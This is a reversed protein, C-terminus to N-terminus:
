TASGTDLLEIARRPVRSAGLDLAPAFAQAPGLPPTIVGQQWNTALRGLDNVNITLNYDSDGFIWRRNSLQWNSALQGLDAVDVTGSLNTDGYYTYKVLVSTNDVSQGSFTAPFSSFVESADAYGLGTNGAVAAVDSQIGLGNWSGGAYGNTILLRMAELQSAGIYDLIMDNDNLNIATGETEIFVENCVLVRHGNTGVNIQGGIGTSVFNLHQTSNLNLVAESHVSLPRAAISGADTNLNTTGGTVNFISGAGHSHLTNINLTGGGTRNLTRGAGIALTGNLSLAVNNGSPVNLTATGTVVALQTFSLAVPNGTIACTGNNNVQVNRVTQSGSFTFNAANINVDLNVGGIGASSSFNWTGGNANLTNTGTGADVLLKNAGAHGVSSTITDNGAGGDNPGLDLFLTNASSVSMPAWSVGASSGTVSTSAAGTLTVADNANPTILTATDFDDFFVLNCFPFAITSTGFTLSGKKSVTSDPTYSGSRSGVGDLNITDVFHQPDVITIDADQPDSIFFDSSVQESVRMTVNEVNTVIAPVNTRLFRNGSQFNYNSLGTNAQDFLVVTDNNGDGNVTVFDDIFDLNNNGNGLNITDDGTGGSVTVTNNGTEIISVIDAGGQCLIEIENNIIDSGSDSVGNVVSIISNGSISISITDPGSTGTVNYAILM